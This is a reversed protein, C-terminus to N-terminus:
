SPRHSGVQAQETDDTYAKGIKIIKIALEYTQDFYDSTHTVKDPKVNLLDLDELITEEFESKFRLLM